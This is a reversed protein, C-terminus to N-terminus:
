AGAGGGGAVSAVRSLSGAPWSPSRSRGSGRAAAARRGGGTARRAGGRRRPPPGPDRLALQHARREPLHVGDPGRRRAAEGARRGALGAPRLEEGVASEEEGRAPGVRVRLRVRVPLAVGQPQEGGTTPLRAEQSSGLAPDVAQRRRAVGRDDGEPRPHERTGGVEPCVRLAALGALLGADGRKEELVVVRDAVPVVPEGRAAVAQECRCEGVIGFRREGGRPVHLGVDGRVRELLGPEGQRRVAPDEHGRAVVGALEGPDPGVQDRDVERCALPAQQGVTVRPVLGRRDGRVARRDGRDALCGSAGLLGGPDRQDRDVQCGARLAREGLAKVAPGLTGGPSGVARRDEEGGVVVAM